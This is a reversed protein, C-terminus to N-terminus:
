EGCRRSWVYVKEQMKLGGISGGGDDREGSSMQQLETVLNHGVRQSGTPQLVGPKGAM